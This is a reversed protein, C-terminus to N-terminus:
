SSTSLLLFVTSYAVLNASVPLAIATRFVEKLRLFSANLALALALALGIMLPVQIVLIYSTNFMSQWFLDNGLLRAYNGLGVFNLQAIQPIEIYVPGLDIWFLSGQGVGQYEFFSLYLTYFVPFALFV